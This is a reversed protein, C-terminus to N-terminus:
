PQEGYLDAWEADDSPPSHQAAEVAELISDYDNANM